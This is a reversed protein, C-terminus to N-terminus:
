IPNRTALVAHLSRLTEPWCPSRWCREDCSEGFRSSPNPLLHTAWLWSLGCGISILMRPKGEASCAAELAPTVSIEFSHQMQPQLM